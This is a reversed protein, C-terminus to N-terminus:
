MMLIVRREKAGWPTIQYKIQGTRRLISLVEELTKEKSIVGTFGLDDAQGLVRVDIGYWHSLEAGIEEM